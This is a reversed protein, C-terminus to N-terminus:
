FIGADHSTRNLALKESSYVLALKQKLLATFHSTVDGYCHMKQIEVFWDLQKLLSLLFSQGGIRPSGM